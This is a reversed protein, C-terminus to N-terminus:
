QRYIKINPLICFLLWKLSIYVEDRNNVFYVYSLSERNGSLSLDVVGFLM